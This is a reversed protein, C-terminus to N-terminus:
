PAGEGLPIEAIIETGRGPATRVELRGRVSSLMEKMYVLGLHLQGDEGIRTPDFGKGDDKIALRSVNEDAVLRVRLHRAAAHRFVNTLAEQAIRFLVVAAPESVPRDNSADEFRIRLSGIRTQLAFYHRLAASLGLVDLDPPRLEGALQKIRGMASEFVTRSEALCAAAREMSGNKLEDEAANLRAAVGVSTSGVEHHLAAALRKKEDERVALVKRSFKRLEEEMRKRILIKHIEGAVLQLRTVDEEAYDAAKNGVGLVIRVKDDELVPVSMFRVLPFHGQPLGKRHPSSPYDNYVVARRLRVCDMWNGAQEISPSTERPLACIRKAGASMVCLSISSQDDAVFYLFGVASDTLRVAQELAVDYIEADSMRAAKRYLDLLVANMEVNKIKRAEARNQETVDRVITYSLLKGSEKVQDANIMADFVAGDKRRLRAAFNRVSGKDRLRGLLRSHDNPDVFTEALKVGKLEELSYGTIEEMTRNASLVSGEEDSIGIGVPAADFQHRYRRESARLGAASRRFERISRALDDKRAQVDLPLQRAAPPRSKSPREQRRSTM